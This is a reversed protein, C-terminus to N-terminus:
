SIELEPDLFFFKNSLGALNFHLYSRIITGQKVKYATTISIEHPTYGLSGYSLSSWGSSTPQVLNTGHATKEHRQQDTDDYYLVHLEVDDTTLQGYEENSLIAMTLDLISSAQTYVKKLTPTHYPKETTRVAAMAVQYSWYTGLGDPLVASRTPYFGSREYKCCGRNELRMFDFDKGMYFCRGSGDDSNLDEGAYIDFSLDSADFGDFIATLPYSSLNILYLNSMKGPLIIRGGLVELFSAYGSVSFVDMYVDNTIESLDLVPNILKVSHPYSVEIINTATYLAHPGNIFKYDEVVGDGRFDIGGRYGSQSIDLVFGKIMHRGTFTVAVGYGTNTVRFVFSDHPAEFVIDGGFYSSDATTTLTFVGHEAWVDGQDMTIYVPDGFTGLDNMNAAVTLSETLDGLSDATRVYIHDGNVVSGYAIVNHMVDQLTNWAGVGGDVTAQVSSTGDGCFASSIDIYKDAM